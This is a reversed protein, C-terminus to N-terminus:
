MEWVAECAREIIKQKEGHETSIHYDIPLRIMMRMVKMTFNYWDKNTQTLLVMAFIYRAGITLLISIIWMIIIWILTTIPIDNELSDVLVKYFFPGSIILITYVLGLFTISIIKARICHLYGILEVILKFIPTKSSTDKM